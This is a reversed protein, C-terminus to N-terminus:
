CRGAEIEALMQGIDATPAELSTLRALSDTSKHFEAVWVDLGKRNRGRYRCGYRELYRRIGPRMLKPNETVILMGARRGQPHDFNRLFDWTAYTVARMLYPTRDQSRLFMRCAYYPRDEDPLRKLGVTSLGVLEGAGDRVRFVVERSRREAETPNLVARQERWFHIIEERQTAGVALYVAELRYDHFTMIMPVRLLLGRVIDGNFNEDSALRLV